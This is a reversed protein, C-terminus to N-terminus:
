PKRYRAALLLALVQTKDGMEGIAVVVATNTFAELTM